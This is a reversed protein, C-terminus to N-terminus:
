QDRGDMLNEELAVLGVANSDAAFKSRNRMPQRQDPLPIVDRLPRGSRLKLLGDLDDMAADLEDVGKLWLDDSCGAALSCFQVSRQPLM